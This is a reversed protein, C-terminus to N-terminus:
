LLENKRKCETYFSRNCVSFNLYLGFLRMKKVVLRAMDCLRCHVEPLKTLCGCARSEVDIKRSIYMNHIINIMLFIQFKHVPHDRMYCIGSEM